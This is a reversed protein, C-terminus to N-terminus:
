DKVLERLITQKIGEPLKHTSNVVAFCYPILAYAPIPRGIATVTKGDPRVKKDAYGEFIAAERLKEKTIWFQQTLNGLVYHEIHNEGFVGTATKWKTDPNVSYLECFLNSTDAYRMDYKADLRLELFDGYFNQYDRFDERTPFHDSRAPVFDLKLQPTYFEQIFTEFIEGSGICATKFKQSDLTRRNM